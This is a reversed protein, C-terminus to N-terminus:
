AIQPMINAMLKEHKKTKEHDSKHHYTYNIGCQCVCVANLKAKNQHNYLNHRANLDDKNDQYYEAVTRGPINKNVCVLRKIWYKEKALLDIKDEFDYARILHIDFDNNKIIEFSTVYNYTGALYAKYHSKHIAIRKHLEQTTSGVYILGTTNDVIKYIKSNEFRNRKEPQAM